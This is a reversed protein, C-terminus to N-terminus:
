IRQLKSSFNKFKKFECYIPGWDLKSGGSLKEEPDAGSLM